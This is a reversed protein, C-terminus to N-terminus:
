DRTDDSLATAGRTWCAVAGTVFVLLAVILVALRGARRGDGCTRAAAPTSAVCAPNSRMTRWDICPNPKPYEIRTARCTGTRLDCYSAVQDCSKTHDPLGLESLDCRSTNEWCLPQRKCSTAPKM